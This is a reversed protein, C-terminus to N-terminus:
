QNPSCHSGAVASMKDIKCVFALTIIPFTRLRKLFIRTCIDLVIAFRGSINPKRLENPRPVELALEKDREAKREQFWRNAALKTDTATTGGLDSAKIRYMKGKYRKRWRSQVDDWNMIADGM